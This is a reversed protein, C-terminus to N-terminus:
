VEKEIEKADKDDRLGAFEAHRLVGGVTWEAFRIEAVIEPRLWVYDGMEDATLGEGWHGSKSTPLNAFACKKVQLPQLIRLLQRRNTPNLGQHVKGAFLMRDNEFQGVLLLELRRGDMRFGGIVFEQSPKLPLKLWLDTRQGSKYVSDVRKAIVGELRHQRVASMIQSLTGPLSQSLLVGSNRLLTELLVRREKLPQGFLDKGNLHLLDFAYYALAWGRPLSARNQLMQFSPVGREDVVVAEGDLVFSDANIKEVQGAIKAFKKTFDNGRRSYLRIKDGTKVAELRYGDLKLEYEWEPGEPLARILKALM